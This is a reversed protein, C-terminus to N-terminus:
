QKPPLLLQDSTETATHCHSHGPIGDHHVAQVHVADHDPGPLVEQQGPEVSLLLIVVTGTLRM